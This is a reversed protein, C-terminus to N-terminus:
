SAIDARAFTILGGLLAVIMGGAIVVWLTAPAVNLATDELTRTVIPTMALMPQAWPYWPGFEASQAAFIAPLTFCVNLALAAGFSKWRSSVWLQVAALPLVAVWGSLM